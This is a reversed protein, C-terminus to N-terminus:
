TKHDVLVSAKGAGPGSPADGGDQGPEPGGGADEGQGRLRLNHKEKYENIEQGKKTLQENLTEVVKMLQEKNNKLAPLVEKVTREVLVGGIMRYCRRDGDVEDLTEIVIKHENLEVELEAVKNVLQRQENRLTQFGQLIETSNKINAKPNKIPKKKGEGSM